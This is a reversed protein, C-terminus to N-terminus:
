YDMEFVMQGLIVRDLWTYYRQGYIDKTSDDNIYYIHKQNRLYIEVPNEENLISKYQLNSLGSAEILSKMEANFTRIKNNDINKCKPAVGTVSFAYFNLLTYNKALRSYVDFTKASDLNSFGLWLIVKTGKLASKLQNHMSSGVETTTSNFHYYYAGVQASIKYTYGLFQSDSSGRINSTVGGHQVFTSYSNGLVYYAIDLARADGILIIEKALIGNSM